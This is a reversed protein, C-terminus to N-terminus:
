NEEDEDNGDKDEYYSDDCSDEELKNSEEELFLNRLVKNVTIKNFPNTNTSKVEYTGKSKFPEILSKNETIM